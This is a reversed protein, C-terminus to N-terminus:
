FIENSNQPIPISRIAIDDMVREFVWVIPTYQGSQEGLGFDLETESVHYHTSITPGQTFDLELWDNAFTKFTGTSINVRDPFRYTFEFHRDETFVATIERGYEDPTMSQEVGQESDFTARVLEWMGFLLPDTTETPSDCQFFFLPLLFLISKM